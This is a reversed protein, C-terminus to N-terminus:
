KLAVFPVGAARGAADLRELLEAIRTHRLQTQHRQSELFHQWREPGQWRLRNALLASTGQMVASAEAIRWELDTWRPSQTSPAALERALLETTKRLAAQLVQLPPLTKETEARLEHSRM